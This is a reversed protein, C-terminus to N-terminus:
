KQSAKSPVLNGSADRVRRRKKEGTPRAARPVLQEASVTRLFTAPNFQGDNRSLADVLRPPLIGNDHLFKASALMAEIHRNAEDALAAKAKVEAERELEALAMDIEDRQRRLEAPSKELLEPRLKTIDDVAM